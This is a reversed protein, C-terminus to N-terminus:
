GRFWARWSQGLEVDRVLDVDAAFLWGIASVSRKGGCMTLCLSMSTVIVVWTCAGQFLLVFLPDTSIKFTGARHPELDFRRWIRGITSQSLGHTRGDLGEVLAHCGVPGARQPSRSWRRCRTECSRPRGALAPSIPWGPWAMNSSGTAGSAVTPSSVGLEAAAHTHFAGPQACALM